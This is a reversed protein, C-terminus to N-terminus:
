LRAKMIRYRSIAPMCHQYTFSPEWFPLTNEGGPSAWILSGSHGVLRQVKLKGGGRWMVSVEMGRRQLLRKRNRKTDGLYAPVNAIASGARFISKIQNFLNLSNPLKHSSSGAWCRSAALTASTRERRVTLTNLVSRLTPKWTSVNEESMLTQLRRCATPIAVNWRLRFAVFVISVSIIQDDISSASDSDCHLTLITTTTLVIVPTNSSPGGIWSYVDFAM